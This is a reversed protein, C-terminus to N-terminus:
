FHIKYDIYYQISLIQPSSCKKFIYYKPIKICTSNKLKKDRTNRANNKSLKKM